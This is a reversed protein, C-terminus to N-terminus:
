SQTNLPIKLICVLGGCQTLTPTHIFDYGDIQINSLPVENLLRTESICIVDFNSNTCSLLTRLEDIYKQLSSINLHFISFNKNSFKASIFDSTTYYKSQINNSMFQDTDIKQGPMKDLLSKISFSPCKGGVFDIIDDTLGHNTLKMNEDSISSFPLANM